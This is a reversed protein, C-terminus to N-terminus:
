SCIARFCSYLVNKHPEIKVEQTQLPRKKQLLFLLSTFLSLLPPQHNQDYQNVTESSPVSINNMLIYYIRIHMDIRISDTLFSCLPRVQLVTQTSFHTKLKQRKSEQKTEKLHGCKLQTRIIWPAKLDPSM